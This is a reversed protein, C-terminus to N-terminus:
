LESCSKSSFYLNYGKLVDEEKYEKDEINQYVKDTTVNLLYIVLLALCICELVNITSM